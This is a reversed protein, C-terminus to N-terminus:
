VATHVGSALLLAYRRTGSKSMREIYLYIDRQPATM